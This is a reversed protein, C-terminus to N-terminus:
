HSLGRPAVPPFMKQAGDALLATWNGGKEEQHHHPVISSLAQRPMPATRGCGGITPAQIMARPPPSGGPWSGLRWVPRLNAKSSDPLLLGSVSSGPKTWGLLDRRRQRPWTCGRSSNESRSSLRSASLAESGTCLGVGRESPGWLGRGAAVHQEPWVWCLGPLLCSQAVLVGRRLCLMQQREQQPLRPLQASAPSSQAAVVSGSVARMCVGSYPQSIWRCM